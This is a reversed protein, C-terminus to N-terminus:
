RRFCRLLEGLKAFLRQEHETRILTSNSCLELLAEAESETLFLPLCPLRSADGAELSAIISNGSQTPTHFYQMPTGNLPPAIPGNAM